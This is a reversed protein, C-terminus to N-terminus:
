KKPKKEFRGCTPPKEKPQYRMGQECGDCPCPKSEADFGPKDVICDEYHQCSMCWCAACDPPMKKYTGCEPPRVKPLLPACDKANCEACPAPRIGDTSPPFADCEELMFCDNCWCQGCIGGEEEDEEAPLTPPPADKAAEAAREEALEKNRDAIGRTFADAIDAAMRGANYAYERVNYPEMSMGMGDREKMAAEIYATLYDNEAM